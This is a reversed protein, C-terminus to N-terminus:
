RRQRDTRIAFRDAVIGVLPVPHPTTLSCAADLEAWPMQGLHQRARRLLHSLLPASILRDGREADAIVLGADAAQDDPPQLRAAEGHGLCAGRSLGQILHGLVRRGDGDAVDTQGIPVPQPERSLYPPLKGLGSEDDRCSEADRRQRRIEFGVRDSVQRFWKRLLLQHPREIPRQLPPSLVGRM